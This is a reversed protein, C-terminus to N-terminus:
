FLLRSIAYPCVPPLRSVICLVSLRMAVRKNSVRIVETGAGILGGVVQSCFSVSLLDITAVCQVLM